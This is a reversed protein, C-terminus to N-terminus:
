REEGFTERGAVFRRHIRRIHAPGVECCGGVITAGMDIWTAVFDAYRDPTLDTRAAPLPNDSDVTFGKPLPAFGNAYAGIPKTTSDALARLGITTRNPDTCNILYADADTAHVADVISEGSAINPGDAGTMTWSVWVPKRHTRAAETAANGEDITSMTEALFLDVHPALYGAQELYEALLVTRGAVADPRYSGRYPPLSGAVRVPIGQAEAEDAVERALSGSLDNLDAMQSGQGLRELRHRGLAYSNTTIVRAGATIYDRHAATVMGPDDILARGSWALGDPLGRAMLEHGMGGDLM